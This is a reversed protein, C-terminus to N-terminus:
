KKYRRYVLYGGGGILIAGAIVTIIPANSGTDPINVKSKKYPENYIILHDLDSDSSKKIKYLNSSVNLLKVNGDSKVEFTIVTKLEKYGAPAVVETLTYKGAPIYFHKPSKSSTYELFVNGKSDKIVIKAGPLEKSNAISEKSIKMDIKENTILLSIGVLSSPLNGSRGVKNLAVTLLDGSIDCGADGLAECLEEKNELFADIASFIQSSNSSSSYSVYDALIEVDGSDLRGNDNLDGIEELADTDIAGGPTLNKVTDADFVDHEGELYIGILFLDNETIGNEEDVNAAASQVPTPTKTGQIFESVLDADAQTISNDGNVDGLKYTQGIVISSGNLLNEFATVDSSNVTCDGNVDVLFDSTYEPCVPEPQEPVEDCDYVDDVDPDNTDNSGALLGSCNNNYEEMKTQWEAMATNYETMAANYEGTVEANTSKMDAIVDFYTADCSPNGALNCVKNISSRYNKAANFVDEDENENLQLYYELVKLNERVKATTDVGNGLIDLSYLVSPAVDILSDPNSIANQYVIMDARDINGDLNADGLLYTGAASSGIINSDTAGNLIFKIPSALKKYAPITNVEEVYYTGYYINKFEVIGDSDTTANPVQNGNIDVVPKKNADLLRFTIGKIARQTKVDRKLIKIDGYPTNYIEAAEYGDGDSKVPHCVIQGDKPKYGEPTEIEKVYYTPTTGAAFDVKFRVYGNATTAEKLKNNCDSDSYLGIKVGDIALNTYSDYKYVSIEDNEIKDNRFEVSGNVTVKKCNNSLAYYGKPPTKELVYYTGSTAMGSFIAKGQDNTIVVPFTKTSGPQKARITCTKNTYLAYHAGKLKAGTANDVKIVTITNKKNRFTVKGGTEVKKCNDSPPQYGAPQAVEKIYYTGPELGTFAVVGKSNTTKPTTFGSVTTTCAANKFIQYKAGALYTSSNDYDVKYVNITRPKFTISLTDSVTKKSSVLVIVDQYNSPPSYVNLYKYTGTAKVTLKVTKSSTVKSKPVKVYFKQGKSMTSDVKGTSVNVIKTGTPASNKTVTYSSANTLTVTVTSRYYDGSIIPSTAKASITPKVTYNSHKKAEKAKEKATKLYSSSPSLKSSSPRSDLSGKVKWLAFQTTVYNTKTKNKSYNDLLYLMAGNNSSPHGVYSLTSNEPAGTKSIEYCFGIGNATNFNRVKYTGGYGNSISYRTIPKTFKTSADVHNIWAFGFVFVLLIISLIKVIKFKNDKRNM